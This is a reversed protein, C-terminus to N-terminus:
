PLLHQKPFQSGPAALAGWVPSGQHLVRCTELETGLAIITCASGTAGPPRGWPAPMQLEALSFRPGQEIDM